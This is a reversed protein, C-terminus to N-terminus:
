WNQSDNRFAQVVSMPLRTSRITRNMKMFDVWLQQIDGVKPILPFLKVLKIKKYKVVQTDELRQMRLISEANLISEYALIYSPKSRDLTQM